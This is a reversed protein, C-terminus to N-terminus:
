AGSEKIYIEKYKNVMEYSIADIKSSWSYDITRMDGMLCYKVNVGQSGYGNFYKGGENLYHERLEYATRSICADASSFGETPASSSYAMYGTVNGRSARASTNWGSELGVISALFFPNINNNKSSECISYSLDEIGFHTLVNYMEEHTINNFQGVNNPDYGINNKREIELRIQRQKEEEQKRREEKIRLNENVIGMLDKTDEKVWECLDTKTEYEYPYPNFLGLNILATLILAKM